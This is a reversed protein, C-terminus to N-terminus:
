GFHVLVNFTSGSPVYNQVMYFADEPPPMVHRVESNLKEFYKQIYKMKKPVGTTIYACDGVEPLCISATLETTKANGEHHHM